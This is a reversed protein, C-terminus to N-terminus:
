NGRTNKRFMKRIQVSSIDYLNRRNIIINHTQTKDITAKKTLGLFASNVLRSSVLRDFIIIDCLQTINRYRYWKRFNVLNDIGMLWSFKTKYFRKSLENLSDYIYYCGLDHEATSVIIKLDSAMKLAKKARTFVNLKNQAKLPNQNAVLWIIYNFKYLKIAQKSIMLHGYHAPNFTGGLVGVRLPYNRIFSLEQLNNVKTEQLTNVKIDHYQMNM